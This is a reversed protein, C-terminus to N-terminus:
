LQLAQDLRRLMTERNLHVLIDLLEPGHTKGTMAARIPMMLPKGRFGVRRGLSEILDLADERELSSHNKLLARMELLVKSAEPSKLAELASPEMPLPRDTFIDIYERIEALTQLNNRLIPVIRSLDREDTGPPAFAAARECLSEPDMRRIHQSNLWVLKKRDFVPASKAVKEIRFDRILDELTCIEGGAPSTGGLLTLYNNLAEPLFGEERYARVSTAGHRKSLPSRDEGLILPHHAFIPPTFGLSQYILLQRPTNSLHDEGRIVHTVEMRADDITCAFNYAPTGDSRLLVFDGIHGGDFSLPGHIL